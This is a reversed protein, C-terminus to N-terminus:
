SKPATRMAMWKLWAGYAVEQFRFTRPGVLAVTPSPPVLLEIHDDHAVVLGIGLKSARQVARAPVRGIELIVGRPCHGSFRSVLELGSRWYRSAAVVGRVRLAPRIVRVLRDELAEIVGSPAVDLLAALVPDLDSWPIAVGYPLNALVEWLDRDEVAGLGEAQRRRHEDEDIEVLASVVTGAFEVKDVVVGDFGLLKAGAALRTSNM